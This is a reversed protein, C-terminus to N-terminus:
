ERCVWRCNLRGYSFVAAAINESASLWRQECFRHSDFAISISSALQLIQSRSYVTEDSLAEDVSDELWDRYSGLNGFSISLLDFVGSLYKCTYATGSYIPPTCVVQSVGPWALAIDELGQLSILYHSGIQVKSAEGVICFSWCLCQPIDKTFAHFTTYWGTGAHLKTTSHSNDLM